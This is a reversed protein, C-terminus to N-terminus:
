RRAGNKLPLKKYAGRLEGSVDRLPLMPYSDSWIERGSGPSSNGSRNGYVSARKKPERSPRNM